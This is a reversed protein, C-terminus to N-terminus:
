SINEIKQIKSFLNFFNQSTFNQIEIEPKNLITSLSKIVYYCYAPENISGRFPEPALYPADTECLIRDLPVYKVIDRLKQANKFSIIGSFSIYFGHDLAFKAFDKSGTFCHMVAAFNSNKKNSYLLEKSDTEASRSHIVLPLNSKQSAQIHSEFSKKQLIKDEQSINKTYDLGTEGISIIKPNQSIQCIENASIIEKTVEEPHIGVSAYVNKYKDAIKLINKLNEINISITHFYKIGLNLAKEISYDLNIQKALLDLHCHSDIIM